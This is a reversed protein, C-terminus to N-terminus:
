LKVLRVGKFLKIVILITLYIIPLILFFICIRGLVEYSNKNNLNEIIGIFFTSICITVIGILQQLAESTKNSKYGLIYISKNKM